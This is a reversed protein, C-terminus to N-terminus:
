DEPEMVFVVNAMTTNYRAKITPFLPDGKRFIQVSAKKNTGIFRVAAIMADGLRCINKAGEGRPGNGTSKLLHYM